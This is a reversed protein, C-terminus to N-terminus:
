VCVWFLFCRIPTIETLFFQIGGTSDDRTGSLVVRGQARSGTAVAVIDVKTRGQTSLQVISQVIVDSSEVDGVMARVSPQAAVFAKAESVGSTTNAIIGAIGAFLVLIALCGGMFKILSALAKPAAPMLRNFSSM